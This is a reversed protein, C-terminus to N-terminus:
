LYEKGSMALRHNKCDSTTAVVFDGDTPVIMECFKLTM